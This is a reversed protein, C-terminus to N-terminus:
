LFDIITVSVTAFPGIFANAMGTIVMKAINESWKIFEHRPVVM